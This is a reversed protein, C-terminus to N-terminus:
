GHGHRGHLRDRQHRILVVSPKRVLSPTLPIVSQEYGLSAIRVFRSKLVIMWRPTRHISGRVGKPGTRSADSSWGSRKARCTGTRHMCQSSPCSRQQEPRIHSPRRQSGPRILVSDGNPCTPDPPVPGARTPCPYDARKPDDPWARRLTLMREFRRGGTWCCGMGRLTGASHSQLDCINAPVRTDAGFRKVSPGNIFALQM